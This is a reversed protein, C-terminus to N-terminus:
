HFEEACTNSDLPAAVTAMFKLPRAPDLMDESLCLRRPVSTDDVWIASRYTTGSRPKNADFLFGDGYYELTLALEGQLTDENLDTVSHNWYSWSMPHIGPTGACHDNDYKIVYAAIHDSGLHYVTRDSYDASLAKCEPNIFCGGLGSEACNMVFEEGHWQSDRLLQNVTTVTLVQPENEPDSGSSCAGLLALSVAAVPAIIHHRRTTKAFANLHKM